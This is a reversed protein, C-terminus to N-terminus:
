LTSKGTVGIQMLSCLNADGLGGEINQSAESRVRRAWLGRLYFTTDRDKLQNSHSSYM